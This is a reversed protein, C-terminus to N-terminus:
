VPELHSNIESNIGCTYLSDLKINALVWGKVKEFRTRNKKTGITYVFIPNEDKREKEFKQVKDIFDTDPLHNWGM